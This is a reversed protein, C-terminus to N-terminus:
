EFTITQLMDELYKLAKEEDKEDYSMDFEWVESGRDLMYISHKKPEESNYSEKETYVVDEFKNEKIIVRTYYVKELDNMYCIWRCKEGLYAEFDGNYDGDAKRSIELFMNEKSNRFRSLYESNTMAGDAFKSSLTFKASAMTQETYKAAEISQKHKEIEEDSMKKITLGKILEDIDATNKEEAAKNVSYGISYVYGNDSFYYNTYFADMGATKLGFSCTEAKYGLIESNGRKVDYTLNSQKKNSKAKDALKVPTTEDDEPQIYISLRPYMFHDKDRAYAYEAKLELNNEDKKSGNTEQVSWEPTYTFKIFDNEITQPETPLKDSSIYKVTNALDKILGKIKSRDDPDDFSVFAQLM